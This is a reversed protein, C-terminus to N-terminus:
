YRDQPIFGIIANDILKPISTDWQKKLDKNTLYLKKSIFCFKDFMEFFKKEQNSESYNSNGYFFYLTYNGDMPPVLDPLLHHLAKSIGVLKMPSKMVVLNHFLDKLRDKVKQINKEDLKNIEYTSLEKLLKKHKWINKRFDDFKVLRPGGGLRDMGWTSLTAYIYELFVTDNLLKVYDKSNRIKGLVRKHFYVSSNPFSVPKGNKDKRNYFKYVYYFFKSRSKTLRKINNEKMVVDWFAKKDKKIM